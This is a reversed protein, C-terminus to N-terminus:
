GGFQYKKHRDYIIEGECCTPGVHRDESNTDGIVTM